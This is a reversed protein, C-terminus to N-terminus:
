PEVIGKLFVWLHYIKSLYRGSGCSELLTFQGQKNVLQEVHGDVQKDGWCVKQRSKLIEWKRVSSKNKSRWQLFYKLFSDKVCRQKIQQIELPEKCASWSCNCVHPVARRGFCFWCRHCGLTKLKIRSVRQKRGKSRAPELLSVSISTPHWRWSHGGSGFLQHM